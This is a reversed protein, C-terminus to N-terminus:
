SICVALYLHEERERATADLRAVSATLPYQAGLFEVDPRQLGRQFRILEDGTRDEWRQGRTRACAEVFEGPAAPVVRKRSHPHNEVDVALSHRPQAASEDGDGVNWVEEVEAFGVRA